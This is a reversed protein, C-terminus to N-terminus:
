IKELIENLLKMQIEIHKMYVFDIFMEFEDKGMKKNNIEKISTKIESMQIFIQKESNKIKEEVFTETAANNIKFYKSKVTDFVVTVVLVILTTIVTHMVILQIKGKKDMCYFYDRCM